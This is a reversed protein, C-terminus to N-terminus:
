RDLVVFGTGGPGGPNSLSSGDVFALFRAPGAM